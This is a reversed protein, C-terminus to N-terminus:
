SSRDSRSPMAAFPLFAPSAEPAPGDRVEVTVSDSAFDGAQDQTSVSVTYTGSIVGTWTLRYPPGSVEGLPAEGNWFTAALADGDPDSVAAEIEITAPARFRRNPAPRLIRVVPDANWAVETPHWAPAGALRYLRAAAGGVYFTGDVAALSTADEPLDADLVEWTVLDDTRVVRAAPWRYRVAIAYLRDGDVAIDESAMDLPHRVVTGDFAQLVGRTAWSLYVMRGAFPVPRWGMGRAGLLDPGDSWTSGDFVRSGPHAGGAYDYAQLYLRDAYVGAFYYRAFDGEIGSVAPTSQVRAFTAGDDLSRWAAASSGQSGVLWLDTGDLTAMDYAHTVTLPEYDAWPEGAAYDARSRPDTAPAYLRDRIPRYNHIAETDSVWAPEFAGTAPDFPSIAIPGTNATYDGYGAYLRGRWPFLAVLRKGIDTRQEVAQPHVGVLEFRAEQARIASGSAMAGIALLALGVCRRAM